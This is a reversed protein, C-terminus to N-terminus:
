TSPRASASRASGGGRGVASPLAANGSMTIDSANAHCDLRAASSAANRRRTCRPIANSASSEAPRIGERAASARQTSTSSVTCSANAESSSRDLVATPNSRAAARTCSSACRAATRAIRRRIAACMATSVAARAVASRRSNDSCAVSRTTTNARCASLTRAREAANRSTDPTTVIVPARTQAAAPRQVRVSTSRARPGSAAANAACSARPILSSSAVSTTESPISNCPALMRTCASRGQVGARIACRRPRTARMPCRASVTYTARNSWCSSVRANSRRLARKRRLDCAAACATSSDVARRRISTASSPTPARCVDLAVSHSTTACLSACRHVANM